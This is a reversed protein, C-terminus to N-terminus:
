IVLNLDKRNKHIPNNLLGLECYLLCQWVQLLATDSQVHRGAFSSHNLIEQACKCTKSSFVLHLCELPPDANGVDVTCNM